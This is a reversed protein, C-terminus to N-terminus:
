TDIKLNLERVFRAVNISFVEYCDLDDRKTGPKLFLESRYEDDGTHYVEFWCYPVEALVIPAVLPHQTLWRTCEGAFARSIGSEVFNKFLAILYLDSRSFINRTGSGQAKQVSPVIWGKELWVNLRVRKIGTIREVDAMLYTKSKGANEM